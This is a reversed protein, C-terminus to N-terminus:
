VQEIRTRYGGYLARFYDINSPWATTVVPTLELSIIDGYNFVIETTPTFSVSTTNEALNCASQVGDFPSGFSATNAPGLILSNNKYIKVTYYAAGGPTTDGTAHAQNNIYVTLSAPRLRFPTIVKFDTKVTTGTGTTQPYNYRAAEYTYTINLDKVIKAYIGAYCVNETGRKGFLVLAPADGELSAQILERDIKTFDIAADAIKSRTIVKDMIQSPDSIIAGLVRVM